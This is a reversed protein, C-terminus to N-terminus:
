VVLCATKNKKNWPEKGMRALSMKEKAEDTHSFRRSKAYDSRRKREEDSFKYKIGKVGKNHPIKGKRCESMKFIAEPTHKIGTRGKRAISKDKNILALQPRKKGTWYGIQGLGGDGGDTLNVLIGTNIDKRGLEKILRKEHDCAEQWTLDTLIIEHYFGYKNVYNKWKPSRGTLQKERGMKGIGIYFIQGTTKNVHRYLIFNNGQRKIHM